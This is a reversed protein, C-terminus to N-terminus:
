MIVCSKKRKKQKGSQGPQGNTAFDANSEEHENNSKNKHFISMRKSKRKEKQQGTSQNGQQQQQQLLAIGQLRDAAARDEEEQLARALEEDDDMQQQPASQQPAINNVNTNNENADDGFPNSVSQRQPAGRPAPQANATVTVPIFSGTNYADQSGNVSKLSKWVVESNFSHERDSVLTYLEGGNKYLTYFHENRFLVAFSREVLIERLHTLGYETFQSASRALFSKLYVADECIAREQPAMTQPDVGQLEYSQVLARQAEQYSYKSVHDYAMPDAGSSGDVMWGHVIGVNFLRFISIEVSDEFSGNFEPNVMLGSQLQPLIQLLQNINTNVSSPNQIGINALTEVLEYMSVTRKSQVLAILNRAFQALGPSLLLVNALAILASLEKDDAQLMIHRVNGNIRVEKTEFSVNM